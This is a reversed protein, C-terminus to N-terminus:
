YSLRLGANVQRSIYTPSTSYQGDVTMVLYDAFRWSLGGRVSQVMRSDNKQVGYGAEYRLMADGRASGTRESRPGFPRTVTASGTFRNLSQPTYYQTSVRQSDERLYAAGLSLWDKLRRQLAVRLIDQTNDDNYRWVDYDATAKWDIAPDWVIGGGDSHFRRGQRIAAATEINGMGDRAAVNLQPLIQYAAGVAYNDSDKTGVGPASESFFRRAYSADLSLERTLFWRMQLGAERGTISALSGDPGGRDSYRGQGVWGQVRASRVPVGARLFLKSISSGQSDSFGQYETGVSPGSGNKSQQLLRRYRDDGFGGGDSQLADARAYLEQARFADGTRALAAGEGALLRPAVIGEAKLEDYVAQARAPQDSRMWFEAELMRAQVGPDSMALHAVLQEPTMAKPVEFRKLDTPNSALTNLGYQEQVFALRYHQRVLEQNIAASQPTNTKDAQGFDGYPFAFAVVRSGPLMDEVGQKATKFERDLRARYEPLTELRNKRDLWLRNALYRGRRGDGDVLMPDHAESGHAQIDWRGTGQWVRLEEATAHFGLRRLRSLHVFMTAKFDMEELVPFANEFSDVRGDDFTILLPKDPLGRPDRLYRELETVTITRYGAKKLAALHGRFAEQGINVPDGREDRLIGHYLLAPIPTQRHRAAKELLRRASKLRGADALLRAERVTLQPSVSPLALRVQKQQVKIAGLFDGQAELASSLGNLARLSNPNRRTLDEYAKQAAPWDQMQEFAEAQMYYGNISHPDLAVAKRAAELAGPPNRRATQIKSVLEWDAADAARAAIIRYQWELAEEWARRALADERLRRLAELNPEQRLALSSWEKVAESFQGQDCLAQARGLRYLDSDPDAAVLRNFLALAEAPKGRRTLYDAWQYLVPPHDEHEKVLRRLIAVAERERTLAILAKVLVLSADRDGPALDLARRAFRMAEPYNLREMEMNAMFRLAAPNGADLKLLMSGIKWAEDIDKDRWLAWGLNLLASADPERRVLDRWEKKAEEWRGLDYFIRARERRYATNKPDSKVLRELIDLAAERRGMEALFVAKRHLAQAHDPKRKLVDDLVALAEEERRLLFLARSSVLSADKDEPALKLARGALELAAPYDRREIETNALFVLFTPNEGDLKVLTTGIKWAQAIRKTHWYAWGLNLLVEASGPQAEAAQELLPIADAYRNERM